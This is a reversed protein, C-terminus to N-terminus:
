NRGPAYKSGQLVDLSGKQPFVYCAKLRKKAYFEMKSTQFPESSAETLKSSLM